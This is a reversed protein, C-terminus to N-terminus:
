RVSTVKNFMFLSYILVFWVNGVVVSGAPLHYGKYEDDVMLRHAIGVCPVPTLPLVVGDPTLSVLHYSTRGDSLSQTYM